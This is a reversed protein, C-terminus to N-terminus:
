GYAYVCLQDRCHTKSQSGGGRCITGLENPRRPWKRINRRQMQKDRSNQEYINRGSEQDWLSKQQNAMHNAFMLSYYHYDLKHKFHEVKSKKYAKVSEINILKRKGNNLHISHRICKKKDTIRARAYKSVGSTTKIINDSTLRCSGPLPDVIRPSFASYISSKNFIFILIITLFKAKLEM